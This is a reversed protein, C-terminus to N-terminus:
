AQRNLSNVTKRVEAIIDDVRLLDGEVDALKRLAEKRRAKYRTVGAAEEFLKRREEMKDSLITEVMKLETYKM